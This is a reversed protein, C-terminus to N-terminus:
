KWYCNKFYCKKKLLNRMNIDGRVFYNMTKNM